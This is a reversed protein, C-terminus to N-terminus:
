TLYINVNLSPCTLTSATFRPTHTFRQHLALAQELLPLNATMILSDISATGKAIVGKLGTHSRVHEIFWPHVRHELLDKMTLLTVDLPSNSANM